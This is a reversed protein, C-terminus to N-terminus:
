SSIEFPWNGLGNGSTGFPRATPQFADVIAWHILSRELALEFSYDHVGCYNAQIFDECGGIAVIGIAHAEKHLVVGSLAGAVNIKPQSLFVGRAPDHRGDQMPKNRCHNSCVKQIGFGDVNV